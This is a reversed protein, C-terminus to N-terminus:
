FKTLNIGGLQFGPYADSALHRTFQLVGQRGSIVESTEWCQLICSLLVTLAGTDSAECM